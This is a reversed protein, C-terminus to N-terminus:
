RYASFVDLAFLAVFSNYFSIVNRASFPFSIPVYVTNKIEAESRQRRERAEEKKGKKTFRIQEIACETYRCAVPQVASLDSNSGWYRCSKRRKVKDLGTGPGV